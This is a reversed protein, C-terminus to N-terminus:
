NTINIYERSQEEGMLKTIIVESKFNSLDLIRENNPYLRVKYTTYGDKSCAVRIALNNEPMNTTEKSPICQGSLSYMLLSNGKNKMTIINDSQVLESTYNPIKPEIVIATSVGMGVVTQARLKELEDEDIDFGYKKEPIVPQFSVRYFALDNNNHGKPMILRVQASHKPLIILRSPTIFISESMDKPTMEISKEKQGNENFPNEVRYLKVIYYLASKCSNNTLKKTLIMQDSQNDQTQHWYDFLGDVSIGGSCDKYPAAYVQLAYSFLIFLITQISLKSIMIIGRM